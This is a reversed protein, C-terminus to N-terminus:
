FPLDEGESVPAFGPIPDGVMVPAPAPQQVAPAAARADETTPRQQQQQAAWAGPGVPENKWNRVEPEKRQGGMVPAGAQATAWAPVPGQAAQAAGNSLTQRMPKISGLVPLGNREEQSMGQTIERPLDLKIFHTQYDTVHEFAVLDVYWGKTGYFVRNADAPIFIGRTGDPATIMQARYFKSLDLKIKVNDKM